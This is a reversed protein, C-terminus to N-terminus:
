LRAQEKFKKRESCEGGGNLSIRMQFCLKWDSLAYFMRHEDKKKLREKEKSLPVLSFVRDKCEM